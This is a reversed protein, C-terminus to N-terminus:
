GLLESDYRKFLEKMTESDRLESAHIADILSKIRTTMIILYHASDQKPNWFTHPTGRPVIVADHANAEFMEEGVKFGLTGKLVYWAEDDHHHIHLPAIWEPKNGVSTGPATWEAIAMNAGTPELTQGHLLSSLFNHKYSNSM